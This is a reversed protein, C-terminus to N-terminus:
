AVFPSALRLPNFADTVIREISRKTRVNGVVSTTVRSSFVDKRANRPIGLTKIGPLTDLNLNIALAMLKQPIATPGRSLLKVM